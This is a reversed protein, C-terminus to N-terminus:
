EKAEEKKSTFHISCVTVGIWFIAFVIAFTAAPNWAWGLIGQFAIVIAFNLCTEVLGLKGWFGIKM